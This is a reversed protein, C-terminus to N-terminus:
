LLVLLPIESNEFDLSYVLIIENHARICMNYYILTPYSKM